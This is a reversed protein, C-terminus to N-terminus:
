SIIYTILDVLRESYGWENDYWAIVKVMKNGIVQTSLADVISSEKMGKYDTSVLPEYSIGLIGKLENAAAHEFAENIEQADCSKSLECTLDIVSVTPTPVRFAMGNIKGELQPLVLSVARAAGTTTPIINLAAARGRRFDSHPFDLTVQDNTYAHITTMLGREIGFAEDLVKAVPALGNTTCSANSIVHHKQPDYKDQNVGMVITIDEDKAPASIVVKKAGGSEIHAVAQEKKTFRGTSELVIDVGLDRWPINAPDRQSFVHIYKGGVNLGQGQVTVDEDLTGYNSDYKLLYALNSPDALDNLAVVEYNKARKSARLFRRGISGFGNIGVKIM